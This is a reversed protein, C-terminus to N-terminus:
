RYPRPRPRGSGGARESPRGGPRPFARHHGNGRHRRYPFVAGWARCLVILRAGARGTNSVFHQEQENHFPPRQHPPWVSSLLPLGGTGPNLGSLECKSRPVGKPYRKAWWVLHGGIVLEGPQEARSRRQVSSARRPLRRPWCRPRCERTVDRGDVSPVTRLLLGHSRSFDNSRSDLPSSRAGLPLCGFESSCAKVSRSEPRVKAATALLRPRLREESARAANRRARARRGSFSLARSDLLSSSRRSWSSARMLSRSRSAGSFICLRSPASAIIRSVRGRDYCGARARGTGFPGPLAPTTLVVPIRRM